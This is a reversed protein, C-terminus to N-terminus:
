HKSRSVASRLIASIKRLPRTVRWSTSHKMLVVYESIRQIEQDRQWLRERLQQRERELFAAYRSTEYLEQEFADCEAARRHYDQNPLGVRVFDGGVTM